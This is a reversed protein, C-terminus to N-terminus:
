FLREENSTPTRFHALHALRCHHQLFLTTGSNLVKQPHRPSFVDDLNGDGVLCPKASLHGDFPPKADPGWHEVGWLGEPGEAAACFGKTASEPTGVAGCRVRVHHGGPGLKLLGDVIVDRPVWATRDVAPARQGVQTVNM